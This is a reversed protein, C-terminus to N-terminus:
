RDVGILITSCCRSCSQCFRGACACANRIILTLRPCFFMIYERKINSACDWILCRATESHPNVTNPTSIAVGVRSVKRPFWPLLALLLGFHSDLPTPTSFVRELSKLTLVFSVLHYDTCVILQEKAKWLSLSLCKNKRSYSKWWFINLTM